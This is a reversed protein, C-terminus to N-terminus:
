ENIFNNLDDKNMYGIHKAIEKEEELKILTPISLVGYKKAINPCSDVDVKVIKINSRENALEELLPSLMKCPGCWNAYFDILVLDGKILKEFSNEDAYILNM